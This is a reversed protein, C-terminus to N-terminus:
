AHLADAQVHGACAYMCVTYLTTSQFWFAHFRRVERTVQGSNDFSHLMFVWEQLSDEDLVMSSEVNQMNM